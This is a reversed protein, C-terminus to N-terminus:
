LFIWKETETKSKYSPQVNCSLKNGKLALPTIKYSEYNRALTKRQNAEKNRPGSDLKLSM